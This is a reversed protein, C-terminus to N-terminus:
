GMIAAAIRVAKSHLKETGEQIEIRRNVPLRRLDGCSREAM